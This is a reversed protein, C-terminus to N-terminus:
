YIKARFLGTFCALVSFLFYVSSPVPVPSPDLRINLKAEYFDETISQGYYMAGNEYEAYASANFSFTTRLYYTQETTLDVTQDDWANKFIDNGDDSELSISSAWLDDVYSFSVSVTEPGEETDPYLILQYCIYSELSVHSEISGNYLPAPDDPMFLKTSASATITEQNEHMSDTYVSVEAEVYSGGFQDIYVSHSSDWFSDYDTNSDEVWENNIDYGSASHSVESNFSGDFPMLELYAANATGAMVMFCVSLILVTYQMIKKGFM